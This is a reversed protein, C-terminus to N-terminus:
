PHIEFDHLHVVFAGHAVFGVLRSDLREHGDVGFFATTPPGFIGFRHLLAQDTADNATVDAKLLVYSALAARVAPDRFTQSDMERCSVCWDAYFDLMTHRGAAHAAAVERELDAISKITRFPLGEPRASAGLWGTGALPRLPDVGGAASSAILALGQLGLLAAGVWRLASRRGGKLGVALLVWVASFVVAAWVLMMLRPTVVRDLMWAAVGLFVVGFVAKVTEMWPGAKPLLKGASAGVVLLPTGMGISLAGLALAGRAIDGAQGIVAFAAVLPPAVCATVVLSSLAGMIATSVFKGGRISNSAIAFRTQLGSPMQLEYAGFMALALAIFLAAFLVLIWTQQFVAQAQSGAAAFAVGAITYTVAMGLVYAVSLAFGRGPTTRAGDGAIIGALIPVMPLVCPTFSLLLGFGWFAAIVLLLNGSRILVALRDQESVAAAGSSAGASQAPLSLHQTQPPYCLGKDACGQYVVRLTAQAAAPTYSMPVVLEGRYIQQEGFYEDQHPLGVPWEPTGLQLAANEASLKFRARYLYYGDAILWRLRLRGPGDSELGVRFAQEPPLFDDPGSAASSPAAKGVLKGLLGVPAAAAAPAAPTAAAAPLRVHALWSQPPYCLGADACGQLKLKLELVEPQAAAVTYPVRFTAAGRYIEQEGFYEDHHSLAKPFGTAGLTIGATDTAFAIRKRYLYYGDRINYSVYLADPKAEVVYEYAKEPPLFQDDAAVAAMAVLLAGVAFLPLLLRRTARVALSLSPPLSM